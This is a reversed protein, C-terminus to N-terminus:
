SAQEKSDHDRFGEHSHDFIAQVFTQGIGKEQAIKLSELANRVFELTENKQNQKRTRDHQWLAIGACFLRTTSREEFASKKSFEERLASVLAIANAADYNPCHILYISFNSSPDNYISPLPGHECVKLLCSIFDNTLDSQQSNSNKSYQVPEDATQFSQRMLDLELAILCQHSVFPNAITRTVRAAFYFYDKLRPFSVEATKKQKLTAPSHSKFLFLQICVYALLTFVSALSVYWLTNLWVTAAWFPMSRSLENMVSFSGTQGFRIWAASQQLTSTKQLREGPLLANSQKEFQVDFINPILQFRLNDVQNVAVTGAIALACISILLGCLAFALKMTSYNHNM